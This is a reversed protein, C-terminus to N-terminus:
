IEDGESQKSDFCSVKAFGEATRTQHVLFSQLKSGGM